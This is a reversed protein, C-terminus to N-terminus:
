GTLSRSPQGEQHYAIGDRTLCLHTYVAAGAQVSRRGTILNAVLLPMLSDVRGGDVTSLGDAIEGLIVRDTKFLHM